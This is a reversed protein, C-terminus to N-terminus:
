GALLQAVLAETVPEFPHFRGSWHERVIGEADVLLTHPVGPYLGMAEFLTPGDGIFNPYSIEYEELFGEVLSTEGEDISIGVVTFADSPYRGHMLELEPMEDRCPICWTAWMNLVVVRGRFQDLDATEGGLDTLDLLPLPENLAPSGPMEAAAAAGQEPRPQGDGCGAAFSAAIMGALLGPLRGRRTM